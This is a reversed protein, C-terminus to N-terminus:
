KTEGELIKRALERTKIHEDTIRDPTFPDFDVVARALMDRERILSRNEMKLECVKRANEASIDHASKLGEAICKM